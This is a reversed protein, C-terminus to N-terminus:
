PYLTHDKDFWVINFIRGDTFFGVIRGHENGSVSFQYAEDYLDEEGPIGFGDRSVREDSWTVRHFRWARSNNVVLSIFTQRCVEQMRRIITQFYSADDHDIHFDSDELLYRFSFIIEKRKNEDVVADNRTNDILGLNKKVKGAKIGSM